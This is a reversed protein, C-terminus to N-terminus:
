VKTVSVTFLTPFLPFELHVPLIKAWPRLPLKGPKLPLAQDNKQHKCDCICTSAPM